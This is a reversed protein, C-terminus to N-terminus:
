ALKDWIQYRKRFTLVFNPSFYFTESNWALTVHCSLNLMFASLKQYLPEFEIFIVNKFLEWWLRELLKYKKPEALTLMEWQNENNKPIVNNHHWELWM